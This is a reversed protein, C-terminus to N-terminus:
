KCFIFIGGSDGQSIANKCMFGMGQSSKQLLSPGQSGQPRDTPASTPMSTSYEQTPTILRYAIVTDDKFTVIHSFMDIKRYRADAKWLFWFTRERGEEQILLKRWHGTQNNRSEFYASVEQETNGMRIRDFDGTPSSEPLWGPPVFMPSLGCGVLGILALITVLLKLQSLRM